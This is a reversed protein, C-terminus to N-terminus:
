CYTTRVVPEDVVEEVAMPDGGKSSEADIDMRDEEPKAALTDDGEKSGGDISDNM